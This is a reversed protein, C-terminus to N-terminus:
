HTRFILKARRTKRLHSVKRRFRDFPPTLASQALGGVTWQDQTRIHNCFTDYKRRVLRQDFINIQTKRYFEAYLRHSFISTRGFCDRSREAVGNLSTYHYPSFHFSSNKSTDSFPLQDRQRRAFEDDNDDDDNSQLRRISRTRIEGHLTVLVRWCRLREYLEHM